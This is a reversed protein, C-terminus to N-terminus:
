RPLQRYLMERIVLPINDIRWDREEAILKQVLTGHGALLATAARQRRRTYHRRGDNGRLEFDLQLFYQSHLRCFAGLVALRKSPAWGLLIDDLNEVDAPRAIASLADRSDALRPEQVNKRALAAAIEAAGTQLITALTRYDDEVLKPTVPRVAFGQRDEQVALGESCLRVLAERVPIASAQFRESLTDIKLHSAPKLEHIFIQRRIEAYIREPLSTSM